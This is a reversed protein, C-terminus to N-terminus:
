GPCDDGFSLFCHLYGQSEGWKYSQLLQLQLQLFPYCLCLTLFPFQSDTQPTGIRSSPTPLADVLVQPSCLSVWSYLVCHTPSVPASFLALEWRACPHMSVPPSNGLSDKATFISRSWALYLWPNKVAPGTIRATKM